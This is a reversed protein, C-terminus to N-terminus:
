YRKTEEMGVDKAIARSLPLSLTGM